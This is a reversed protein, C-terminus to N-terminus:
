PHFKFSHEQNVSKLIDKVRNFRDLAAIKNGKKEYDLGEKFDDFMQLQEKTQASVNEQEISHENSEPDDTKKSDCKEDPCCSKKQDGHFRRIQCYNTSTILSSTLPLYLLSSKQLNKTSRRFVSSLIQKGLVRNM